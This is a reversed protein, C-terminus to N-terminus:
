MYPFRISLLLDKMNVEKIFGLWMLYWADNIGWSVMYSLLLWKIHANTISPLRLHSWTACRWRAGEDCWLRAELSENSWNRMSKRFPTGISWQPYRHISYTQNWLWRYTHALALVLAQDQLVCWPNRALDWFWAQFSAETSLLDWLRHFAPSWIWKTM